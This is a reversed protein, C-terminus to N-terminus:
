VPNRSPALEGIERAVIADAVRPALRSLLALASIPGIRTELRERRLSDIIEAAVRQASVKTRGIGRALETDVFPPLVEFVKVQGALEVRLSRRRSLGRLQTQKM